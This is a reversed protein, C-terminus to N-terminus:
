AHIEQNIGNEDEDNGYETHVIHADLGQEKLWRAYIETYGHTVFIKEAGTAKVAMNLGDWDAHDSLVFGTDVARRRRIGRVAMWGSVVAEEADGFKKVWATGLASPPCIVLAGKFNSPHSRNDAKYVAPLDFGQKRFIENTNEIAGHVFIRETYPKLAKLLRQAKGLSYAGIISAKGKHINNQHWQAIEMYIQEQDSWKFSPLGFTSETIFTDCRVPEFAACIGDNETKYDGSVVWVEGKHELRIQASGIVHGAPHFSVRVGNVNFIEGYSKGSIQIHSGLRHKTIPVSDITTIYQQNGYRAHDSHAHTIVAKSVPKWPDIYFDGEPCYLGKNTFTILAKM